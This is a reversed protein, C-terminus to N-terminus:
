LTKKLSQPGGTFTPYCAFPWSFDVEGIGCLTNVFLLLVGIVVAARSDLQPRYENGDAQFSRARIISCARSDAVHRYIRTAIM